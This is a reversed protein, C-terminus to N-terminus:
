GLEDLNRRTDLVGPPRSMEDGNPGDHYDKAMPGDQRSLTSKMRSEYYDKAM